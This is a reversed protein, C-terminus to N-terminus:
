IRCPRGDLRPLRPNLTLTGVRALCLLRRLIAPWIGGDAKGGFATGFGGLMSWQRSWLVERIELSSNLYKFLLM